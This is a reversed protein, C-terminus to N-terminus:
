DTKHIYIYLTNQSINVTIRLLWHLLIIIHCRFVEAPPAAGQHHLKGAVTQHNFTNCNMVLDPDHYCPLSRYGTLERIFSDSHVFDFWAFIM